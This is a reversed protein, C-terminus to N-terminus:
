PAVQQRVPVTVTVRFGDSGDVEVNGGCWEVRERLGSLGNGPVIHAAGAGDDVATLRADAGVSELRIWLNMAESHRITNTAIEQVARVLTSAREDDPELDPAVDLHVRPRPIEEVVRALASSLDFSRDREIGVVGRVDDLLHRALERSRMVYERSEGDAHHSAVELQVALVSLQHGLLDHLERSIRLRERERSSEALLVSTGRLEVHAVSLQELADAVREQSWIMAAVVSQLIAYLAVNLVIDSVPAADTRLPTLGATNLAVVLSNALILVVVVPPDFVIAAISVSFMLLIFALGGPNPSLYAVAAAGLVPGAALAVRSAPGASNGSRVVAVPGGVIFVAFAVMWVVVYGTPAVDLVSFAEVVGILVCLALMAAGSWMEVYASREM